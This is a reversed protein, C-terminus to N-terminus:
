RHNFTFLIMKGDADAGKEQPLFPNSSEAVTFYLKNSFAASYEDKLSSYRMKLPTVGSSLILESFGSVVLEDIEISELKSYMNWGVKINVEVWGADKNPPPGEHRLMAAAILSKLFTERQMELYDIVRDIGAFVNQPTLPIIHQKALVITKHIESKKM